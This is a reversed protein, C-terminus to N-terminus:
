NPGLEMVYRHTNEDRITSLIEDIEEDLSGLM